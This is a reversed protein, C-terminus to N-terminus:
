RRTATATRRARKRRRHGHGRLAKIDATTTLTSSALSYNGAASGALVFGTATVTKGNAVQKDSFTASGGSLSVDDGAIAGSLSRGTITAATTGDYFKNAATFSGTLSKAAVALTAATTTATQAGGCTNTFVARYKNGSQSVAPKTLTLPPARRHLSIRSTWAM